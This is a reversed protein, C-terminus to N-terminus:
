KFYSNVLPCSFNRSLCDMLELALSCNAVASRPLKKVALVMDIIGQAAGCTRNWRSTSVVVDDNLSSFQFKDGVVDVGNSVHVFPVSGYKLRASTISNRPRWLDGKVVMAALGKDNWADVVPQALAVGVGYAVELGQGGLVPGVDVLLDIPQSFLTQTEFFRRSGSLDWAEGEFLAYLVGPVSSQLASAVLMVTVTASVYSDMGIAGNLFLSKSDIPAGVLVLSDSASTPPPLPSSPLAPSSIVSYGGVARCFRRTQSESRRLCTQANIAAYHDAFLSAAYLPHRNASNHHLSTDIKRLYEPQTPPILAIPVPYRHTSNLINRGHPNFTSMQVDTYNAPQHFRSDLKSLAPTSTVPTVPILIAVTAPLRKVLAEVGDVSLESLPMVIILKGPPLDATPTDFMALVGNTKDTTPPCGFEGEANLYRACPYINTTSTYLDEAGVGAGVLLQLVLSLRRMAGLLLM